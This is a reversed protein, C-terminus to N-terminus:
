NGLQWGIAQSGAHHAAKYSGPLDISSDAGHLSLYTGMLDTTSPGKLFIEHNSDHIASFSVYVMETTEAREKKLAQRFSTLIYM